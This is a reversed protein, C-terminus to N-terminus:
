NYIEKMAEIFKETQYMDGSSVRAWNELGWLFGPRMIVGKKQLEIFVERSSRGLDVFIFNASPELYKLGISNFYDKMTDLSKKNLEVTNNIHEVDDMSAVAAAQAIRNVNFVGKAKSVEKILEENSFMYGVRLGALGAVKAFTRLVITNPRTKLIDLGDPYGKTAKAYEFYAEDLILVVENPINSVLYDMDEKTMINGTPNNPNCVYVAKTNENVNDIFAKFDHKFESDLPLKISKGGMHNVSIEYLSFSPDAMIAEDGESIITATILKLLEEGGNGVMIQELKVHYKKALKERLLTVGPDPYIHVNQAEKQIAEIALKSPGLPNENSALKIVEKLNFEKQVEEIPKGPIYAPLDKLEKKYISKM